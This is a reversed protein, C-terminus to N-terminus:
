EICFRTGSDCMAVPTGAGVFVLLTSGDSANLCEEMWKEIHCIKYRTM